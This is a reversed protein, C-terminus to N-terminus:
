DLVIPCAYDNLGNKCCYGVFPGEHLHESIYADSQRCRAESTPFKRHFQVCADQWGAGALITGDPSLVFAPIATARFLSDLLAQLEPVSVLDHFQISPVRAERSKAQCPLSSPRGKVSPGRQGSAGAM